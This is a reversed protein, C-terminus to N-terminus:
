SEADGAEVDSVPGTTGDSVDAGELKKLRQETERSARRYLPYRGLPKVRSYGRGHSDIEVRQFENSCDCDCDDPENEKTYGATILRQLTRRVITLEGHTLDGMFQRFNDLCWKADWWNGDEWVLHAPGFHLPDSNGDLWKVAWDYIEKVDDPWDSCDTM